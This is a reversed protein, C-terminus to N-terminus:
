NPTSSKSSLKTSRITKKNCWSPWQTGETIRFTRSRLAWSHIKTCKSKKSKRIVQSRRSSRSSNRRWSPITRCRLLSKAISLIMVMKKLLTTDTRKSSTRNHKKRHGLKSTGRKAQVRRHFRSLSCAPHSASNYLRGSQTPPSWWRTSGSRWARTPIKSKISRKHRKLTRTVPLRRWHIMSAQSATITGSDRATNTATNRHRTCNSLKNFVPAVVRGTRGTWRIKRRYFTARTSQVQIKPQHRLNAICVMTSM